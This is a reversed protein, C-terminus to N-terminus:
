KTNFFFTQFLRADNIDRGFYDMSAHFLDGKYLVLRNYKNGVQDILEWKTYDQGDNNIVDLLASNREGNALRPMKYAGTPKHRYIGTGGSAPAEPTLYCVGAWENWGDCHIWTRDRATTYQYSGCYTDESLSETDMEAGILKGIYDAISENLFSKTRNGPYNGEVDFKQELAFARVEDVNSYFNDCIILDRM